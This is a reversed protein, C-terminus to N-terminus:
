REYLGCVANQQRRGGELRPHARYRETRELCSRKTLCLTSKSAPSQATRRLRCAVAPTGRNAASLQEIVQATDSWGLCADTVSQGFVLPRGRVIDQRGEVLFSEIM